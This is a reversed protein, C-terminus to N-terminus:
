RDLRKGGDITAGEGREHLLNRVGHGSESESHSKAQLLKPAEETM